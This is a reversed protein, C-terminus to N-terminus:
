KMFQRGTHDIVYNDKYILESVKVFEFGKELLQKLVEPLVKATYKTDNHFLLISGSKTKENIRRLIDEETIEPKWDLSDVDWQVPYMGLERATAIVLDNYDGYPPRYIKCEEGTVAKIAENCKEIEKIMGAKDLKTPKYHAYSHNAIEHGRSHIERVVDPYKEVWCGLVFFTAKVKYKDLARLIDPIDDAGWANDFTLAIQNKDNQVSYIPLQRGTKATVEIEDNIYIEDKLNAPKGGIDRSNDNNIVLGMLVLISALIFCVITSAKKYNIVIFKM